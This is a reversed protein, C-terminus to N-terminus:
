PEESFYQSYCAENLFDMVVDLIHIPSLQLASCKEAIEHVKNRDASFPAVAAVNLWQGDCYEQALLGYANQRRAPERLTLLTYRYRGLEEPTKREEGRLGDSLGFAGRLVNLAEEGIRRASGDLSDVQLSLEDLYLRTSVDSIGEGLFLEVLPIELRKAILALTDVRPTRRGSEYEELSSLSIGLERSFEAMTQGKRNRERKIRAAFIEQIDM